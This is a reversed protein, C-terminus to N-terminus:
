QAHAPLGATAAESVAQRSAILPDSVVSLVDSHRTRRTQDSLVLIRPNSPM